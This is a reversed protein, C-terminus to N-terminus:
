DMIALCHAYEFVGGKEVAKLNCRVNQAPDPHDKWLGYLTPLFVPWQSAEYDEHETAWNPVIKVNPDAKLMEMIFQPPASARNDRVGPRTRGRSASRHVGGKARM